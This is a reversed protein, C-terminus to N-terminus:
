FKSINNDAYMVFFIGYYSVKVSQAFIDNQDISAKNIYGRFPINWSSFGISTGSKRRVLFAVFACQKGGKSPYRSIKWIESIWQTSRAGKRYTGRKNERRM